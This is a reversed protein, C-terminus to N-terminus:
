VFVLELIFGINKSIYITVEVIVLLNMYLGLVYLAFGIPTHNAM